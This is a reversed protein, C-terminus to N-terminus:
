PLWDLDPGSNEAEEADLAKQIESRNSSRKYDTKVKEIKTEPSFNDPWSKRVKIEKRDIKINEDKM